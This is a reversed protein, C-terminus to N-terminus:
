FLAPTMRPTGACYESYASGLASLLAREEAVIRWVLALFIPIVLALISLWSEFAFGVGLFALLLQVGLLVPLAALMVALGGKSEAIGSGFLRTRDEHFPVFDQYGYRTDLHGLLLVDHTDSDHNALFLINGVEAQPHVQRQFGLRGLLQSVQSGVANVGDINDVGSATEVLNRLRDELTPRQSRLYGRVRVSLPEPEDPRVEPTEGPIGFYRLAAVDLLRDPVAGFVNHLPQVVFPLSYLVSGVVLGPFSFVLRPGGLSEWFSGVPGVPGLLILLYFGLVTPPLVLPLAVAAEVLPRLRSRTRTLWWALPTGGLLLVLTTVAALKATVWVVRWDISM